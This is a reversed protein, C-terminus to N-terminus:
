ECDIDMKNDDWCYWETDGFFHEAKIRGSFGVTEWQIETNNSSYTVSFYANYDPDATHGQEIFSGFETDGTKIIEYKMIWTDKEWDKEWDIALLAASTGAEYLTWSAETRDYRVTGEFWLFDDLTVLEGMIYIPSSTTVYFKLTFEENSIRKSVLRASFDIQNVPVSYSWEWSNEGKYVPDNNLAEAYAVTPIAVAAAALVDWTWVTLYSQLFNQYTDVSKKVGPQDEFASFDMLLAAQPPLDPPDGEDEDKKCGNLVVSAMLVVILLFKSFRVTKKM